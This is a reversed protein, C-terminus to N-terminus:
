CGHFPRIDIWIIIVYNGTARPHEVSARVSMPHCRRGPKPLRCGATAAATPQARGALRRFGAAPRGGERPVPRPSGHGRQWTTLVTFSIIGILLPLWAGHLLKTLNAALFLLDVTLLAGGGIVLLRM